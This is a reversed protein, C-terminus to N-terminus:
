FPFCHELLPELRNSLRADIFPSLRQIGDNSWRMGAAALRHKYQKAASEVVGSGIPLGAHQFDAYQMRQLHTRFYNLSKDVEDRPIKPNAQATCVAILDTIHGHYLLDSQSQVWAATHSADPHDMLKAVEYLHQKAHYWDVIHASDPFRQEAQAWIWAAGDAVFATQQASHWGRQEAEAQLKLGIRDPADGVQSHTLVSVYTQAVAHIAQIPEPPSGVKDPDIDDAGAELHFVTGVKMESWDKTDTRVNVYFGDTSAGMDINATKRVPQPALYDQVQASADQVSRHISMGSMGIQGVRKFVQSSQGFPLLSALWVSTRKLSSSIEGEIHLADDLAFCGM